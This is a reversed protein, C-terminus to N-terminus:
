KYFSGFVSKFSEARSLLWEFYEPWKSGDSLDMPASQKIRSAKKGPLAMWELGSGLTHEIETQHTQFHDFLAQDNPIYAECAMQKSIGNVTLAIHWNAAGSSIDFWHQPYPKRL